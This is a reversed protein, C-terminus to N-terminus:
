AQENLLEQKKKKLEMFALNDGEFSHFRETDDYGPEAMQCETCVGQETSINVYHREALHRCVKCPFDKAVAM